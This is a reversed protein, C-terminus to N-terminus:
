SRIWVLGLIVLVIILVVVSVWDFEIKEAPEMYERDATEGASEEGWDALFVGTYYGAAEGTIVVGVERNNTPSNENWNVSSVLVSRNDVIMGKAHIKKFAKKDLEVLRAELDLGETEALQNLYEVTHYNSVPNGKEINYWYSDLLIKVKVGQRAREVVAELFQNPTKEVSGTKRPGWYKYIYFQELYISENASSILDLVSGIADEPASLFSVDQSEYEKRPFGPRYNGSPSYYSIKYEGLNCVFVEVDETDKSHTELFREVVKQDDVVAGWGRNGFNNNKPYGSLGFNETSVLVSSNDKIIYKSHLFGLRGKYLLVSVGAKQLECLIEESEIGNVPEDELLLTVDVGRAGAGILLDMIQPSSFTYSVLCVSSVAGSLFDELVGHSSDPSVFATIEAAGAQAALLLVTFLWVLFLKKM